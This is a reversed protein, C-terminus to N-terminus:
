VVDITGTEGPHIACYYAISGTKKDDALAVIYGPTSSQFPNIQETLRGAGTQWIEHEQQTQNNWSVLDGVQAQLNVKPTKDAPVFVDPVFSAQALGPQITISWSQGAM